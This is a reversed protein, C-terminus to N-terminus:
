GCRPLEHHVQDHVLLAQEVPSSGSRPAGGPKEQPDDNCGPDGQCEDPDGDVQDFPLLSVTQLRRTQVVSALERIWSRRGAQPTGTRRVARRRRRDHM